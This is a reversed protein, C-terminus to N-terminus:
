PQNRLLDLAERTEVTSPHEMGLRKEFISLAKLKAM